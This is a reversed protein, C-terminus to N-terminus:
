RKRFFLPKLAFWSLVPFFHMPIAFVPFFMEVGEFNAAHLQELLGPPIEFNIPLLVSAM